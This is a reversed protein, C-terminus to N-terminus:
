GRGARLGFWRLTLLAKEGMPGRGPLVGLQTAADYLDLVWELALEGLLGDGGADVLDLWSAPGWRDPAAGQPVPTTGRRPV